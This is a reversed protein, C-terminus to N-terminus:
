KNVKGVPPSPPFTFGYLCRLNNRFVFCSNSTSAYLDHFVIHTMVLLWIRFFGLLMNPKKIIM